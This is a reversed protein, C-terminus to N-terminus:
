LTKPTNALTGLFFFVMPNSLGALVPVQNPKLLFIETKKFLPKGLPGLLRQGPM